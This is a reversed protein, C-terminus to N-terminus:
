CAPVAAQAVMQREVLSEVSDKLAVEFPRLTLGLEAVRSEIKRAKGQVGSAIDMNDMSAVPLHPFMTRLSEFVKEIEVMDSSVIYRGSAADVTMCKVHTAVVQSNSALDLSHAAGRM